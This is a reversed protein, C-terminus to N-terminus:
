RSRTMQTSVDTACRAAAIPLGTQIITARQGSQRHIIPRLSVGHYGVMRSNRWGEALLQGDTTLSTAPTSAVTAVSWAVSMLTIQIGSVM